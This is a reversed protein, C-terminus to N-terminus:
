GPVLCHKSFRNLGSVLCNETTIIKKVEYIEFERCLCAFHGSLSKVGQVSVRTMVLKNGLKSCKGRLNGGPNQSWDVTRSLLKFRLFSSSCRESVESVCLLDKAILLLWYHRSKWTRSKVKVHSVVLFIGLVFMVTHGLSIM